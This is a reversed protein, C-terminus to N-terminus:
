NCLSYPRYMRYIISVYIMLTCSLLCFISAIVNAASIATTREFKKNSVLTEYATGNDVVDWNGAIFIV